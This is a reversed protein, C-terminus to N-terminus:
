KAGEKKSSFESSLSFGIFLGYLIFLCLETAFTNMGIQHIPKETLNLLPSLIYYFIGFLATGAGIGIWPSYFRSLTFVYALAFGISLIAAVGIGMLQIMPRDTGNSLIFPKIFVSPSIFTFNMFYLVYNMAAWFIGGVVGILIATKIKKTRTEEMSNGKM